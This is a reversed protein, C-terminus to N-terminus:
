IPLEAWVLKGDAVPDVGWATALVSVILLGRGGVRTLDLPQPAPTGSGHDTVEIRLVDSSLRLTLDCASGGHVVANTVLESVILQTDDVLVPCRWDALTTAVFRRAESVSATSRALSMAAVRPELAIRELTRLLRLPDGAASSSLLAVTPDPSGPAPTPSYVVVRAWPAHEHLLTLLDQQSVEALSLALVVIRPRHEACAALATDADAADAVLELTPHGELTTHLYRRLDGRDEVVVVGQPAGSGLRSQEGSRM